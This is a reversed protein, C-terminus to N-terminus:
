FVIEVQIFIDTFINWYYCKVNLLYYPSFAHSVIYVFILSPMKTDLYGWCFFSSVSLGITILFCSSQKVEEKTHLRKFIFKRCFTLLNSSIVLAFHYTVEGYSKVSGLTSRSM